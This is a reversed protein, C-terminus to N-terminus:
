CLLLFGELLENKLNLKTVNGDYAGDLLIHLTPEESCLLMSLNHKHLNYLIIFFQLESM